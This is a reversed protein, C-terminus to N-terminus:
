SLYALLSVMRLFLRPDIQPDHTKQLVNQFIFAPISSEIESAYETLFGELDNNEGVLFSLLTANPNEPSKKKQFKEMLSRAKYPVHALKFGFDSQTERFTTNPLSAYEPFYTKWYDRYLRFDSRLLKDIDFINRILDYDAFPSFCSTCNALAVLSASWLNRGQTYNNLTEIFDEHVHGAVRNVELIGRCANLIWVEIDPLLIGEMERIGLAQPLNFLMSQYHLIGRIPSNTEIEHVRVSSPGAVPQQTNSQLLGGMVSHQMFPAIFASPMLGCVVQHLHIDKVFELSHMLRFSSTLHQLYNRIFEQHFTFSHYDVGDMKSIKQVIKKDMSLHPFDLFIIRPSSKKSWVYLLRSDLSGDLELMLDEDKLRRFFNELAQHLQELARKPDKIRHNLPKFELVQPSTMRIHNNDLDVEIRQGPLLRDVNMFLSASFPLFGYRLFEVVAADFLPSIKRFVFQNGSFHFEEETKLYYLPMSGWQDGVIIMKKKKKDVIFINYVGGAIEELAKEVSTVTIRQLLLQANAEIDLNTSSRLYVYGDVILIFYPNELMKWSPSDKQHNSQVMVNEFVYHHPPQHCSQPYPFRAISVIFNDPPVNQLRKQVASLMRRPPHSTQNLRGKFWHNGPLFFDGSPTIQMDGLTKTELIFDDPSVYGSPM